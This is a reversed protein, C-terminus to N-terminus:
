YCDKMSGKKKPMKKKSKNKIEKVDKMKGSEGESMIKKPSTTTTNKKKMTKDM